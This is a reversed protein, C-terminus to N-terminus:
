DKKEYGYKVNFDPEHDLVCCMIGCGCSCPVHAIIPDKNGLRKQEAIRAATDRKAEAMQISSFFYRNSPLKGHPRGSSLLKAM